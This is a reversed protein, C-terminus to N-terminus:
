DTLSPTIILEFGNQENEITIKAMQNISTKFVPHSVLNGSEWIEVTIEISNSNEIAHIGIKTDSNICVGNGDADLIIQDSFSQEQDQNHSSYGVDMKFSAQAVSFSLLLGFFIKKM